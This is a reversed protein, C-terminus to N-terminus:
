SAGVARWGNGVGSRKRFRSVGKIDAERIVRGYEEYPGTSFAGFDTGM